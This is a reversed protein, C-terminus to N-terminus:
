VVITEFQLLYLYSSYLAVPTMCMRNTGTLIPIMKDSTALVAARNGGHNFIIYSLQKILSGVVESVLNQRQLSCVCVIVHVQEHLAVWFVTLGVEGPLELRVTTLLQQLPIALNPLRIEPTASEPRNPLIHSRSTRHRLFNNFLIDFLCFERQKEYLISIRKMYHIYSVSSNNWFSYDRHAYNVVDYKKNRASVSKM